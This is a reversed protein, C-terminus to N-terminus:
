RALRLGAPLTDGYLQAQEDEHLLTVERVLQVLHPASQLEELRAIVRQRLDDAIDREADGAMRTLQVLALPLGRLKTYEGHLMRNLWHTVRDRSIVQEVGGYLPVRAGIRGVAWFCYEGRGALAQRLAVDGLGEKTQHPIRELSAITRWMEALEQRTPGGAAQAKAAQTTKKGKKKKQPAAKQAAGSLLPPALKNSLELQQGRSLGGSVRRWLVWWAIRCWSHDSHSLGERFVTWLDEIRQEDLPDGFGPRLLIGALNLWAAELEPGESRSDRVRWLTQWLDRILQGSWQMRDAKLEEELDKIVTKAADGARSGRRFCASILQHCDENSEIPHADPQEGAFPSPIPEQEAPEEKRLSFELDWRHHTQDATECWLKLTGISTLEAQLTVSLSTAKGGQQLPLITHLPPLEGFLDDSLTVIEGAEHGLPATSTFLTFRVPRGVLLEFPQALTVAQGEETGFPIVCAARKERAGHESVDVYFARASGGRIRTGHGHRTLAFSSAGIAVAVELSRTELVTPESDFWQTLIEVVRDQVLSAKMAGGNFLIASPRASHRRLFAALHKTIAPDAAYPLGLEQLGSRNSLPDDALNVQPFFGDLVQAIVEDRFLDVRASGGIVKSGRGAITIPFRDTDEDSLLTEKGARCAHILAAWQNPDLEGVRKLLRTELHRALALDMNDGGLLLHDGVAIRELQPADETGTVAVLSFDTTGGGVDFVLVVDGPTLQEKWDEGQARIWSYFAALPEELLTVRELGANKAARLTLQRAIEDFSAPVTLIVDCNALQWEPRRQSMETDWAERMHQLFRTSVDVPSLHPVEAPANWPLVPAERDVGGHCLWSKASSILRSPVLAGQDRAFTGVAYPRNSDWPLAIAGPPLDHSGPLYLFSPLQNPKGMKATAVLQSVGFLQITPTEAEDALDVSAVASNTTGLDIGVIYRAKAM